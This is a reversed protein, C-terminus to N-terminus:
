EGYSRFKTGYLEAPGLDGVQKYRGAKYEEYMKALDPAIKKAEEVLTEVSAMHSMMLVGFVEKGKERVYSIHNRTVDAETCHSAIRFVDVGIDLALNIDKKITAFGPIVHISLKSHNLNERATELLTKDTERCIGVQISSAGLGNGHGVEIVPIRAKDAAKCYLAIQEKTLQHKIAHNGDRLTPDCITIHKM